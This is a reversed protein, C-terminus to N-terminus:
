WASGCLLTRKLSLQGTVGELLLTGELAAMFVRRRRMEHESMAVRAPHELVSGAGLEPTFPPLEPLELTPPAPIPPV